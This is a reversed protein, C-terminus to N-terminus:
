IFIEAAAVRKFYYAKARPPKGRSGMLRKGRSLPVKLQSIKTRM